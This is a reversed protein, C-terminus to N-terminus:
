RQYLLKYFYIMILMFWFSFILIVFNYGAIDNQIHLSSCVENCKEYSEPITVGGCSWKNIYTESEIDFHDFIHKHIQEHSIVYSMGLIYLLVIFLFIVLIFRAIKWLIAM